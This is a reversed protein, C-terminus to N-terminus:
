TGGVQGAGARAVRPRAEAVLTVFLTGEVTELAKPVEALVPELLFFNLAIIGVDGQRSVRVESVVPPLM